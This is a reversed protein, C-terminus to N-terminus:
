YESESDDDDVVVSKVEKKQTSLVFINLFDTTM